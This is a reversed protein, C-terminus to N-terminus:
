MDGLKNRFQSIFGINGRLGQRSTLAQQVWRFRKSGERLEKSTNTSRDCRWIERIEM